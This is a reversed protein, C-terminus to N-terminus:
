IAKSIYESPSMGYQERFCQSFYSPSSFGTKYTTTTIDLGSDLYGTAKQLRYQRILDNPSMGLLSKLKRHLTSRSMVSAKCLHDVDLGPDTLNTEIEKYLRALFPDTVLPPIEQPETSFLRTRLQTRVRQQLRFLNSVRLDLEAMQFPKMMYDDAGAQLGRMRADHASKSTLLIFGIHATRPDTKCLECLDFGDRGPMMVDSVVIDPLEELILKWATLGDSASIVSYKDVLSSTIFSLLEANDEVIMVLAQERDDAISPHINRISVQPSNEQPRVVKSIPVEVTLKSYAGPESDVRVSGNMLEVLEKVLSLGIGTGGYSRIASDDAQYFREFIKLQQDAAIGPGNDTVVLRVNDDTDPTLFLSIEGNVPTFKLANSVLNSIIKRWKEHDFLYFGQVQEVSVILRIHKALAAAEFAKMCDSVFFSLEGSSLNLRIQGNNLKSFDLFENSLHLLQSSNRHITQLTEIVTQPLSVDTLLKELPSIILTLPTRFEHTVNSFFRDKMEDMERLRLAERKGFALNQETRIRQERFVFYWRGLMLLALAYAIYAWLTAWFPPHITLAIEKIGPSWLGNYDTANIQLKYSGAPLAAFSAVNNTGNEIWEENRTGRLRYRYKTKQPQNFLMAAFEFRLYNKDYPLEIKKLSALPESIISNRETHGQPENNIQLNTLQIPVNIEQKQQNFDAPNFITYGETGGFAIRGDAFRFKHARNFENGQLGDPKEFSNIAKTKPDFRFIGKNTSCWIKGTNDPVICYITNNPLGDDVTYVKQLGKAVDWLILGGGRSGIWFQNKNLPNVCIETLERPMFGTNGPQKGAFQNIRKNGRYQLLGEAYTSLWLSGGLYYADALETKNMHAKGFSVSDPVSESTKWNYWNATRQDFVSIQDNPKIFLASFIGLKVTHRFKAFTKGDYSFIENDNYPNKCLYLRNKSDRAQRFYYAGIPDLWKAPILSRAIGAKELVDAVFSHEYRYSQFPMANLDIRTIGQANISLWLVNGSDVFFATINTNPSAINQWVLEPKDEKNIRFVSGGNIFYAQGKADLCLLKEMEKYVGPRAPPIPINKTTKRALDLMVITDSQYVLLKNESLLAMSGAYLRNELYLAPAIKKVKTKFHIFEFRNKLTNSIQVGDESVLFIRGDTTQFFASITDRKLLRNAVNAYYTNGTKSNRWGIGKGPNMSFLWDTGNYINGANMVLPKANPIKYLSPLHPSRSSQFTRLDFTDYFAGEYILTVKNDAQPFMKYIANQALSTVDGPRNRFNKFSRGDYRSLGDLTAIWIFGDKDQTIGSVFSQPLGDEIGFHHQSTFM